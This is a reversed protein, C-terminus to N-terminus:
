TDGFISAQISSAASRFPVDGGGSAGDGDREGAMVAMRPGHSGASATDAASASIAGAVGAASEASQESRKKQSPPM